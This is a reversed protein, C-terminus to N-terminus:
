GFTGGGKLAVGESQEYIVKGNPAIMRIKPIYDGKLNVESVIYFDVAIIGPLRVIQNRLTVAVHSQRSHYMLRSTDGRPNRYINVIGPHDDYSVMERGNVMYVDGM